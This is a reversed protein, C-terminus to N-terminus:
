ADDAKAEKPDPLPFLARISAGEGPASHLDFFGGVIRTRENMSLLGIGNRASPAGRYTNSDFGCGGDKVELCLRAEGNADDSERELRVEIWPSHAHKRANTLAEQAVRYVATELTKDFRESGLNCCFSVESWGASSREDALLAELAGLLGLDDLALSRLNQILRRSEKVAQELFRSTQALEHAAKETKALSQCHEFAELHIHAALVYQTLGDHLDYAIARREEEHAELLGAVLARERELAHLNHIAVTAHVGLAQVNAEDADTFAEGDAKNTLYLAGLPTEGRRLPVGLFTEGGEESSARLRLPEERELLLRLVGDAEGREGPLSEAFAAQEELSFGATVLESFGHGEGKAVGIAAYRAGTLERAAEALYRLASVGSRTPLIEQALLRATDLILARQHGRAKQERRTHTDSGSSFDEM